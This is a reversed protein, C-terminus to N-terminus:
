NCSQLAELIANEIDDTVKDFPQEANIRKMKGDRVLDLYIRRVESFQISNINPSKYDFEKRVCSTEVSVDLYICLDYTMSFQYLTCLWDDAIGQAGSYARACYHSRDCLILDFESSENNDIKQAYEDLAFTIARIYTDKSLKIINKCVQGIKTEFHHQVKVTFGKAELRNKVAEIQTSKGSGDLGGFAIVVSM